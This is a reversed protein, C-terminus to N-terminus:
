TFYNPIITFRYSGWELIKPTSIGDSVSQRVDLGGHQAMM